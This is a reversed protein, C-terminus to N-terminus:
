KMNIQRLLSNCNSLFQPIKNKIDDTWGMEIGDEVIYDTKLLQTLENVSM